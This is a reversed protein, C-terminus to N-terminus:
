NNHIFTCDGKGSSKKKSFFHKLMEAYTYVDVRIYLYYVIFKKCYRCARRRSRADSSKRCAFEEHLSDSFKTWVGTWSFGAEWRHKRSNEDFSGEDRRRFSAVEIEEVFNRANALNLDEERIRSRSKKSATTLPLSSMSRADDRGQM